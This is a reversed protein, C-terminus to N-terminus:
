DRYKSAGQRPAQLTYSSMQRAKRLLILAAASCLLMGVDSLINYQHRQSCYFSISVDAYASCPASLVGARVRGPIITLSPLAKCSAGGDWQRDASQFATICGCRTPVIVHSLWGVYATYLGDHFCSIMLYAEVRGEPLGHPHM